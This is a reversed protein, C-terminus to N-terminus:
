LDGSLAPRCTRASVMAVSGRADRLAEMVDLWLVPDGRSEKERSVGELLLVVAVGSDVREGSVREVTSDM